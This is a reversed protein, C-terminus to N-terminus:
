NDGKLEHAGNLDLMWQATRASERDTFCVIVLNERLPMDMTYGDAERLMDLMKELQDKGEADDPAYGVTFGIMRNM